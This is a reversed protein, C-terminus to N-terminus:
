APGLAVINFRVDEPDREMFGKVVRAADSLLNEPTTDGHCVPGAKRGDLEWLKGSHHLFTIFHLNTQMAEHADTVGASAIAEHSEDISDDDELASAREDPSLSLTRSLFTSFFSDDAFQLKDALNMAAHTIGVTGCANGVTQKMFYLGEPIEQKELEEKQEERLKEAAESLPYLLLVALVPSPVMALMEEDVGFVDHFAYQQAPDAGLKHLYQSMLEPDAELPLWQKKKKQQQSTSSSDGSVAAPPASADAM